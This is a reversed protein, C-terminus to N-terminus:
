GVEIFINLWNFLLNPIQAAFGLYALFNSAYNSKIGTYEEGLKYDM